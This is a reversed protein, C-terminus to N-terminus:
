SLRRDPEVRADAAPPPLAAATIVIVVLDADEIRYMVRYQLNRRTDPDLRALHVRHLCEAENLVHVGAPRPDGALALIAATVLRAGDLDTAALREISQEVGPARQLRYSM